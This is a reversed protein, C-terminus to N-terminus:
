IAGYIKSFLDRNMGRTALGFGAAEKRRQEWEAVMAVMAQRNAATCTEWRNHTHKLFDEGNHYPDAGLELLRRFVRVRGHRAADFLPYEMWGEQPEISAGHELLLLSVDDNREVISYRLDGGGVSAGREVLLTALPLGLGDYARIAYELPTMHERSKANPSAGRDLLWAMDELTAAVDADDNCHQVLDCLAVDLAYQAIGARM